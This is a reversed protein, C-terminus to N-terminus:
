PNTAKSIAARAIQACEWSELESGYHRQDDGTGGQDEPKEKPAREAIARLAFLLEPANTKEIAARASLLAERHDEQRAHTLDDHIIDLLAKVSKLLDGKSNIADVIAFAAIKNTAYAIDKGDEDYIVELPEAIHPYKQFRQQAIGTKWNSM